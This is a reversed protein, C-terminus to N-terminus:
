CPSRSACTTWSRRTVPPFRPDRFAAAVANDRVDLVLSRRPELSGICGRLEGQRTLTVFSAGDRRLDEPAEDPDVAPPERRHVACTIAERALELLYQRDEPSLSM